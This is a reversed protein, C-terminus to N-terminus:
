VINELERRSRPTAVLCVARATMDILRRPFAHLLVLMVRVVVPACWAQVGFVKSVVRSM